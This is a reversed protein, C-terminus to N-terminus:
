MFKVNEISSESALPFLYKKLFINVALCDQSSHKEKIQYTEVDFKMALEKIILKIFSYMSCKTQTLKEYLTCSNCQLTFYYSIGGEEVMQYKLSLIETHCENILVAQRVNKSAFAM